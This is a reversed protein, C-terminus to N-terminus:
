SVLERVFHIEAQPQVKARTCSNLFGISEKVPVTVRVQHHPLVHVPAVGVQMGEDTGPVIGLGEPSSEVALAPSAILAIGNLSDVGALHVPKM